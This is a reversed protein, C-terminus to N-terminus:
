EGRVRGTAGGGKKQYGKVSEPSDKSSGRGGQAPTTSNKRRNKETERLIAHSRGVEENKIIGNENSPFVDGAGKTGGGRQREKLVKGSTSRGSV